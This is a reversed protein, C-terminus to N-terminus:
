GGAQEAAAAQDNLRDVVKLLPYPNVAAGGDPHIEFHLHPTGKANGTDGVYGVVSGAEVIQGNQLGDAYGSLHGYYYYTGSEGKLWLKNGGLTDSGIQSVVGRECALLPTGMPALIDTGKHTHEFPTGVMRPAGFSDTFSHPKGVPFVFGHIIIDSGASLIALNIQASVNARRAEVMHARAQALDKRAVVLRDAVAVLDDKTAERAALYEELATHDADLVSGLLASAQALQNPDGTPVDPVFDDLRGRITANIARSEFHRRAAEVRRVATRDVTGLGTVLAELMDLQHELDVTRQRASYYSGGYRVAEAQAVSLEKRIVRGAEETQSANPPRPPVTGADVPVPVDEVGEAQGPDDPSPAPALSPVTTTTEGVATSPPAATTSPAETGGTTAGGTTGGPDQAAASGALAAAVVVLTSAVLVRLRRPRLPAPV